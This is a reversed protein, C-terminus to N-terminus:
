ASRATRGPTLAPLIPHSAMWQRRETAIAIEVILGDDDSRRLRGGLAEFLKLAGRNEPLVPSVLREVGNLLADAILTELLLRGLGAGQYDDVVAVAFEAEAPDDPNRIYRAAAVGPEGPVGVALAGWAVHDRQDPESLLRLEPETLESVFRHFRLYRSRPSMRRLGDVLRRRDDPGIRRVRVRRGDRLRAEFAGPGTTRGPSRGSPRQLRSM